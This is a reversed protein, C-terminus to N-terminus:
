MGYVLVTSHLVNVSVSPLVHPDHQVANEFVVRVICNRTLSGTEGSDHVVSLVSSYIILGDEMSSSGDVIMVTENSTLIVPIQPINANQPDPQPIAAWEIVISLGTVDNPLFADCTITYNNFPSM